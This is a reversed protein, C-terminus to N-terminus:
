RKKVDVFVGFLGNMEDPPEWLWFKALTTNYADYVVLLRGPGVEVVDLYGTSRADAATIMMEGGWSMGDDLSFMLNNGPRGFACVLVGNSMRLLKPMVGPRNLFRKTWTVGGDSSRALLMPSSGGHESYSSQSGTRMVCLLEGDALREIGPEAPGHNGWPADRLNAIVSLFDYSLGGDVSRFAVCTLAKDGPITLYGVCVIAGDALQVAKSSVAVKAMLNTPVRYPVEIPGDWVIGDRSSVADTALYDGNSGGAHPECLYTQAVRFGNTQVVYGFCFGNNYRFSQGKAISTTLGPPPAGTPWAMPDGTKWTMGGDDTYVPWDVTATGSLAGDGAICYTVMIRNSTLPCLYPHSASGWGASTDTAIIQFPTGKTVQLAFLPSSSLVACGCLFAAGASVLSLGMATGLRGHMIMVGRGREDAM